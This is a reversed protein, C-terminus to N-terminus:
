GDNPVYYMQFEDGGTMNAPVKVTVEGVDVFLKEMVAGM